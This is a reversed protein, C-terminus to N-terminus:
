DSSCRKTFNAFLMRNSLTITEAGWSAFAHRRVQAGKIENMEGVGTGAWVVAYDPDGSKVNEAFRARLTSIDVGDEYDKVLRNRLGRGDVGRPWGLTNRAHDFAETRVTSTSRAALLAARQSDSYLSEPTLLFRTGYVAGSVGLALFSAAQAGNSFGGAALLLPDGPSLLPLISSVLSFTPPAYSGGHGGGEIGSYFQVGNTSTPCYSCHSLNAKPLM